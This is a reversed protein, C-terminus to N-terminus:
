AGCCILPGEWRCGSSDHALVGVAFMFLLLSTQASLAHRRQAESNCPGLSVECLQPFWYHSLAALHTQYSALALAWARM